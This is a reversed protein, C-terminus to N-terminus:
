FDARYTGRTDARVTTSGQTLAARFTRDFPLGSLAQFNAGVTIGYPAQYSGLLKFAHPQDNAGRGTANTPITQNPNNIDVLTSLDGDLQSWVYSGLMQWRNSMRKSVSLELAKYRTTGPSNTHFSINQGRYQPLVDYLTIARD